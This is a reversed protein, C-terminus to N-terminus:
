FNPYYFFPTKIKIHLMIIIFIKHIHQSAYREDCKVEIVNETGIGLTAAAKKISYHGKPLFSFLFPM